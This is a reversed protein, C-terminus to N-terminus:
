ELSGQVPQMASKQQPGSTLLVAPKARENVAVSVSGMVATGEVKRPTSWDLVWTSYLKGDFFWPNTVWTKTWGLFCSNRVMNSWTEAPLQPLNERIKTLLTHFFVVKPDLEWRSGLRLRSWVQCRQRPLWLQNSPPEVPFGVANPQVRQYHSVYSNFIVM